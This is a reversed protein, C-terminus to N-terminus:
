GKGGSAFPFIAQLGECVLEVDVVWVAAVAGAVALKRLGEVEIQVPSLVRLCFFKDYSFRSLEFFYM